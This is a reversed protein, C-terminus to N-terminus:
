FSKVYRKVLRSLNELTGDCREFYFIPKKVIKALHKAYLTDMQFNAVHNLSEIIVVTVNPVQAYCYKAIIAIMGRSSNEYEFALFKGNRELCGDPIIKALFPDHPFAQRVEKDPIHHPFIKM